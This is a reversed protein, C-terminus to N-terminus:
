KYILRTKLDSLFYSYKSLDVDYMTYWRLYHSFFIKNLIELINDCKGKCMLTSPVEMWTIIGQEMNITAKPEKYDIPLINFGLRRYLRVAVPNVTELIILRSDFIKLLREIAVFVEKCRHAKDVVLYDIHIFEGTFDVFQLWGIVKGHDKIAFCYFGDSFKQDYNDIWFALENSGVLTTVPFYAYLLDIGKYFDEDISSTIKKVTINRM